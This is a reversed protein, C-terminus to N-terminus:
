CVLIVSKEALDKLIQMGGAILVDPNPHNSEQAVQKLCDEIKIQGRELIIELLRYTVANIEMFKVEDDQSRYAILCTPQGPPELPLYEPSIHQVSFQYVLPWALPSLKVTQDSLDDIKKQDAAIDEKAISLAMEVWEYHALELLFPFDAPNARKNELYDLFEEAIESFYPTKCTHNAFFDQALGFWQQDDLIKRIVPFNGALFGDINNFILERYMAMRETKVDAPVPNEIPDRIYRTFELQKAKFDVSM